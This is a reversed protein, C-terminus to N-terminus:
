LTGALMAKAGADKREHITFFYSVLANNQIVMHVLKHIEMPNLTTHRELEEGFHMHKDNMDEGIALSLRISAKEITSAIVYSSEKIAEYSKGHNTKRKKKAPGDLQSKPVQPTEYQVENTDMNNGSNFTDEELNIDKGETELQKVVDAPTEVQKGIARDKGFIMCLEEYFPFAKIKFPAVEKHSHTHAWTFTTTFLSIKKTFFITNILIQLYADWVLKEATVIKKEADWGFGSCNPGILMEHVVQFHTKLTKMRSKIHPRAQLDCGPLKNHLKRELAKLHRAKFNGEAKFRGEDHLELVSEILLKDEEESWFIKNQGPGRSKSTDM